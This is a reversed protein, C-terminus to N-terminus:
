TVSPINAWFPQGSKMSTMNSPGLGSERRSIWVSLKWEEELALFPHRLKFFSSKKEKLVLTMKLPAAFQVPACGVQTFIEGQGLWRWLCLLVALLDCQIPM